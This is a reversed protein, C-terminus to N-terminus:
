HIWTWPSIKISISIMEHHYAKAWSINQMSVTSEVRMKLPDSALEIAERIM